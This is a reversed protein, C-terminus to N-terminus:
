TWAPAPGQRPGAANPRSLVHQGITRSKTSAPQAQSPANRATALKPPQFPALSACATRAIRLVGQPFPSRSGDHPIAQGIAEEAEEAAETAAAALPPFLLPPPPPSPPPPPLLPPSLLLLGDGACGAPELHFFRRRHTKNSKLKLKKKKEKELKIGRKEVGQFFVSRTFCFLARHRM